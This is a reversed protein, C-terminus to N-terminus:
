RKGRVFMLDKRYARQSHKLPGTPERWAVIRSRPDVSSLAKRIRGRTIPIDGGLEKRGFVVYQVGGPKTLRAMEQMTAIPHNSKDFGGYVCLVGDFRRGLGKTEIVGVHWHDAPSLEKGALSPNLVHLDVRGQERLRRLVPEWYQALGAGIDLLHTTKGIAANTKVIRELRRVFDKGKPTGFVRRYRGRLGGYLWPSLNAGSKVVQGADRTQRGKKILLFDNARSTRINFATAEREPTTKIYTLRRRSPGVPVWKPVWVAGKTRAIKEELDTPPTTRARESSRRKLPKIVQKKTRRTPM